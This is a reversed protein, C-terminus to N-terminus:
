LVPLIVALTEVAELYSTDDLPIAVARIGDQLMIVQQGVATSSMNEVADLLAEGLEVAQDSSLIM